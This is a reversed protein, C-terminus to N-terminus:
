SQRPNLGARNKTKQFPLFFEALLLLLGIGIFYQFYSEYEEFVRTEMERRDLQEVAERIKAVVQRPTDLGFFQGGGASALERLMEANVQSRIPNGSRDKKVTKRGNIWEPVFGGAETGVAVTFLLMGQNSADRAKALADEDHTEGDSILILAKHYAADPEFLKGALDIVSGIETGQYPAQEPSSSKLFLDIAGYDTTLPVQTYAAGAFVILGIREGQLAELLQGAFRKAVELRNPAIDETLMSQSIDLALIIDAAKPSVKQRKVGWQPNAWGAILFGLALWLIGWRVWQGTPSWGRTLRNLTAIEGWQRLAQKRQRLALLGLGTLLPILALAYLYEPHEFRFM